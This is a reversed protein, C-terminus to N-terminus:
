RGRRVAMIIKASRPDAYHGNDSWQVLGTTDVFPPEWPSFAEPKEIRLKQGEESVMRSLTHSDIEGRLINRIAEPKKGARLYQGIKRRLQTRETIM